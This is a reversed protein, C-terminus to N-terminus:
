KQCRWHVSAEFAHTTTSLNEGIIQWTTADIDNKEIFLAVEEGPRVEHDYNVQMWDLVNNRYMEMPFADCIWEVYRSNNVHGLMDVASYGAHVRLREEGSREFGLKELPEDLGHRDPISPLSFNLSYPSVMRRSSANIVLWASTALALPQKQEDLLEFDRVYFLKQQATKPWTRLIVTEGARPFHLFRIKMRSHVWYLNQELMADFGVGLRGASITAAETLHQFIAAAKWQGQFDCEFSNVREQQEYLIEDEDM